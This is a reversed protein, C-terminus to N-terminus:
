KENQPKDHIVALACIEYIEALDAVTMKIVDSTIMESLIPTIAGSSTVQGAFHGCKFARAGTDMQGTKNKWHTIKFVRSV